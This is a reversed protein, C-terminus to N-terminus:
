PPPPGEARRRRYARPGIIAAGVMLYIVLVWWPGFPQSTGFQAQGFGLGVWIGTVWALLTRTAGARRDRDTTSVGLGATYRSALWAVILVWVAVALALWREQPRFWCVAGAGFLLTWHLLWFAVAAAENAIDRQREDAYFPNNFDGIAAAARELLSSM